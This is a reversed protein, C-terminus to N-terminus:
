ICFSSIENMLKSNKTMNKKFKKLENRYGCFVCKQYFIEFETACDSTLSGYCRPCKASSNQIASDVKKTKTIKLIGM